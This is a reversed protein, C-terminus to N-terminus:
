SRCLNESPATKKSTAVTCESLFLALNSCTAADSEVPRSANYLELINLM